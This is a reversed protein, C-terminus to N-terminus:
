LLSYAQVEEAAPERIETVEIDYRVKLGACWENSDCVILQDGNSEKVAIVELETHHEDIMIKNKLLDVGLVTGPEIEKDYGNQRLISRPIVIVNNADYPRYQVAISKCEDLRMGLLADRFEPNMDDNVIGDEEKFDLQTDIMEKDDPRVKLREDSVAMCWVAVRYSVAKGRKVITSM